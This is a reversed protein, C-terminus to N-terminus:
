GGRGYRVAGHPFDHLQLFRIKELEAKIQKRVGYFLAAPTGIRRIFIMKASLYWEPSFFVPEKNNHRYCSGM